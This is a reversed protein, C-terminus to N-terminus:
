TYGATLLLECACELAYEEQATRVGLRGPGPGPNFEFCSPELIIRPVPSAEEDETRFFPGQLLPLIPLDWKALSNQPSDQLSSQRDANCFCYM